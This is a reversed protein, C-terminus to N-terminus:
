EPIVWSSAALFTIHTSFLEQLAKAGGVHDGHGHGIIAYKITAPNLKLKKLGDVVEDQVNYDFIADM